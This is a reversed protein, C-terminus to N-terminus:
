AESNKLHEYIEGMSMSVMGYKRELMKFYTLIKTLDVMSQVPHDGFNHPHWWLHYCEGKKAAVSMEKLVRSLRLENLFKNDAHVPRLLRSAPLSLPMGDKMELSSLKYSTRKGLPMYGDGTRFIKKSLKDVVTQEWFWDKPNSRVTRIGEEFCVKLYSENYQNRPFVLSRLVTGHKAAIKKAAQLDSRFQEITQGAEQCYYHSFTHTGLEQYPTNKIQGILEPAFFFPNNAVIGSFREKLKYASLNINSYGPQKNPIYQEWEDWNETFLMGVTAWTVHVGQKAFVGLMEPIVHRTNQFYTQREHLRVKDFIGWYLEFDLSITFVPLDKM